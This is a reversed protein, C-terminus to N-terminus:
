FDMGVEPVDQVNLYKSLCKVIFDHDKVHPLNSVTVVAVLGVGKVRVPFGGGCFVYDKESLGHRAVDGNVIKEEVTARLSSKEMLSVTNFKRNMWAQNLLSTQETAYQFLIYGNLKRICVALEIEQRSIEEVMLKGLEWADQNTFRDFHLMNEQRLILDNISNFDM